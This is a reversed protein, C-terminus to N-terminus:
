TSFTRIVLGARPKPVFFTTKQPFRVGAESAAAIADETVPAVLIAGGGSGARARSVADADDSVYDADAETVELLPYLVERAVAASADQWPQPLNAIAEPRPSLLLAGGLHPVVVIDGPRAPLVDTTPSVDFATHLVNPDLRWRSFTRHYPGVTFGSGSTPALLTLISDWGGHGDRAAQYTLATTYRHHGDAISVAGGAAARTIEAIREADTIPYLRHEVGAADFSLAPPGNPEIASALDPSSSLALIVDLNGDMATLNALRDTTHKAMTEEHPLIRDGFEMVALSGLVGRGTRHLGARDEYSLEYVYYSDPDRRLAGSDIWSSFLEARTAYDPDAEDPLLIHAMNYPSSAELEARLAADIVDYPPSTAAAVDGVIAPDFRLGPFPAFM